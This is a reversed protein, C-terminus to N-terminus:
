RIQVTLHPSILTFIPSAPSCMTSPDRESKNRAATHAAIVANVRGATAGAM